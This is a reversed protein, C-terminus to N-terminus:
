RGAPVRRQPVDQSVDGSPPVASIGSSAISGPASVEPPAVIEVRGFFTATANQVCTLKGDVSAEGTERAIARFQARRTEGPRLRSIRHEILRGKHHELNAPVVLTLVVDEADGTGVNRIVFVSSIEEGARVRTPLDATVRLDPAGAEQVNSAPEVPPAARLVPAAEVPAPSMPISSIAQQAPEEVRTVSSVAVTTRVDTQSDIEGAAGPFLTIQFLREQGPSLQEITWHLADDSMRAPPETREIRDLATVRETVVLDELTERGQNRVAIIYTWSQGLAASPAERVVSIQPERIGDSAPDGPLDSSVTRPTALREDWARAFYQYPTFDEGMRSALFARAATWGDAPAFSWAPATAHSATGGASTLTIQEAQNWFRNLATWDLSAVFPSPTDDVELLGVSEPDGVSAPFEALASPQPVPIPPLKPDPAAAQVEATHRFLLITLMVGVIGFVVSTTWLPTIRIPTTFLWIARLRLRKCQIWPAVFEPFLHRPYIRRGRVLM